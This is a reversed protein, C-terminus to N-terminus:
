AGKESEWKLRLLYTWHVCNKEKYYLENFAHKDEDM